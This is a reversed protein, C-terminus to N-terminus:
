APQERMARVVAAALEDVNQGETNNRPYQLAKFIESQRNPQVEGYSYHGHGPKVYVVELLWCAGSPM